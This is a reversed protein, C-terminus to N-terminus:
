FESKRKLSLEKLKGVVSTDVRVDGVIPIGNLLDGHCDSGGTIILNKKRAIKEFSQTQEDTHKSHYVEIGDIGEKIYINILSSDNLLGPHALVAVGGAEKILEIAEKPDLRYREVYAPCKPGLYRNFAESVNRVKGKDYLVRAIHSRSIAGKKAKELVEDYSIDFNYIRVLNKVIKKARTVRSDRMESLISQLHTNEIDIFYGLVHIEEDKFQSNLEIGPIIFFNNNDKTNELTEAYGETTDHDTIAIANLSKKKAFKILEAPTLLGDSATTHTHLDVGGKNSIYTM